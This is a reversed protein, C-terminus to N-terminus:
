VILLGPLGAVAGALPRLQQGLGLGHHDAFALLGATACLYIFNQLAVDFQKSMLMGFILSLLVFGTLRLACRTFLGLALLSGILLEVWPLM